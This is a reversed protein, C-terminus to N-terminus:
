ETIENLCLLKIWEQQRRENARKRRADLVRQRAAKRAEFGEQEEKRERELDEERTTVCEDPMHLDVVEWTRMHFVECQAGDIRRKLTNRDKDSSQLLGRESLRKGFAKKAFPIADVGLVRAHRNVLALSAAPDIYLNDFSKWGIQRGRPVLITKEEYEEEEAKEEDEEGSEEEGSEEDKSEEDQDRTKVPVSITKEEYGWLSPSGSMMEPDEDPDLFKLHAEGCHMASVLLELYRTVPDESMANRRQVQLLDWMAEHFREWIDDHQSVDIAGQERAFFLFLDLGALLDAAIDVSRAHLGEGCFTEQRFVQKQEYMERRQDEYQPALWKLFTAMTQAPYGERAISQIENIRRMKDPDEQDFIEAEEIEIALFRANLSKGTPLNEGTCLLLGRPPKGERVTGDGRARNRGARNAQSRLLEDAQRNKRQIDGLTGALIFDDVPFIANKAQFALYALANATSNWGRLDKITLSPGFFQTALLTIESKFCGTPGHVFLSFNAEDIAVRFTAAFLPMVIKDPGLDLFSLTREIANILETGHVPEPLCYKELTSPLQVRVSNRVRGQGLIPTKPAATGLSNGPPLNCPTRNGVVSSQGTQSDAWIAGGSHLFVWENDVQAWGFHTYVNVRGIEDSFRQIAERLEDRIGYGACVIARPGIREIPWNMRDFEEAKMMLVSCRSGLCVEIELEIHEDVGDTVRLENIIRATFNALPVRLVKDNDFVLRFTGEPTAEFRDVIKSTGDTGFIASGLSSPVLGGSVSPAIILSRPDTGEAIVDDIGMHNGDPRPSPIAFHIIAGRSQLFLTLRQLNDQGDPTSTVASSFAINVVRGKLPIAQWDPLPAKNRGRFRRWGRDGILGIATLGASALADAQRPGDAIWLEMESNALSLRSEPPVDITLASGKPLEYKIPCGGRIRPHDPRILHTSVRGDPGYIPIALAPALCQRPQFGLSEIESSSTLSRYGRAKVIRTAICSKELLDSHHPLLQAPGHRSNTEEPM